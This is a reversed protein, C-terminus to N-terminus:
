FVIFILFVDVVMLFYSFLTGTNNVYYMAATESDVNSAPMMFGAFLPVRMESAIRQMHTVSLAYEPAFEVDVFDLKKQRQAALPPKEIRFVWMAYVQLSM